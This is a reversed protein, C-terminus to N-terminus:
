KWNNLCNKCGGCVCLPKFNGSMVEDYSEKLKEVDTDHGYHLYQALLKDFTWKQYFCEKMLLAPGKRTM